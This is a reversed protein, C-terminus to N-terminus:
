SKGNTLTKIKTQLDKIESVMKELVENTRKLYTLNENSQKLETKLRNTYELIKNIELIRKRVEKIANHLQDAPKRTEATRKFQSYKVENLAEEKPKVIDDYNKMTLAKNNASLSIVKETVDHLDMDSKVDERAYELMRIFLPVDMIIIDKPNKKVENWLYSADLMDKPKVEKYGYSKTYVNDKTGKVFTSPLGSKNPTPNPRPNNSAETKLKKRLFAYKAEIGPVSATTSIEQSLKKKIYTEIIKKIEEKSRM